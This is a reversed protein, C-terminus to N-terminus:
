SIREWRCRELGDSDVVPGLEVAITVDLSGGVRGEVEGSRIVRPLTAGVFVGVPEKPLVDGLTGGHLVESLSAASFDSQLQVIPGALTVAVERGNLDESVIGPRLWPQSGAEAGEDCDFIGRRAPCYNEHSKFWRNVSRALKV